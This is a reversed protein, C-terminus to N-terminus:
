LKIKLRDLCFYGPNNMGWDGTDSSEMQFYLYSVRGLPELDVFTWEKLISWEAQNESRYDALYVNVPGVRVGDEKCGYVKLLFYDGKAFKKNYAGGDKMSYFAYTNNNVYMSNPTFPVAVDTAGLKIVCSADAIAVNEKESSNWYGVIYPTGKGAMGGGTTVTWQHELWNGTSYDNVDSSRSPVFGSWSFYEPNATHSFWINQSVLKADNDYVSKWVGKLELTGQVYDYEIPTANLTLTVDNYVDDNKVCSSFLAVAFIAVITAVSMKLQKM